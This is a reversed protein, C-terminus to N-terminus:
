KPLSPKIYIGKSRKAIQNNTSLMVRDLDYVCISSCMEFTYKDMVSRDQLFFDTGRFFSHHLKPLM